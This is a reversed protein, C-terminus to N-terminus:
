KITKMQELKEELINIIIKSDVKRLDLEETKKIEGFSLKTEHKLPKVEM